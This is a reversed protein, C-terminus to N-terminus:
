INGEDLWAKGTSKPSTYNPHNPKIFEVSSNNYHLGCFDSIIKLNSSPDSILKEYSVLITPIKIENSLCYIMQMQWISVEKLWSELNKVENNESNTSISSRISICLPDRFMVILMPNRFMGIYTNWNHFMHWKFGWTDNELNRRVIEKRISNSNKDDLHTGIGWDDFTRPATNKQKPIGLKYLAGMMATTGSRGLGSVIITKEKPISPRSHYRLVRIGSNLIQNM